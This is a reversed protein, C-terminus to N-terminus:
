IEECAVSKKRRGQALRFVIVARFVTATRTRSCACTTDITHMSSEVDDRGDRYSTDGHYQFRHGM